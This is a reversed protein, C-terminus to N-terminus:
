VHLGPLRLQPLNTIVKGDTISNDAIHIACFQYKASLKGKTNPDRYICVPVPKALPCICVPVPEAGSINNNHGKQGRHRGTHSGTRDGRDINNATKVAAMGYSAHLTITLATVECALSRHNAGASPFKKKNKRCKVKCPFM